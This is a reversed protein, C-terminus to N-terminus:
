GLVRSASASDPLAGIGPWELKLDTQPESHSGAEVVFFFAQHLGKFPRKLVMRPMHANFVPVSIMM